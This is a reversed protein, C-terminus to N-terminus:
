PAVIIKYSEPVLEAVRKQGPRLKEHGKKKFEIFFLKGNKIGIRDCVVTPSFIEWDDARMGKALSEEWALQAHRNKRCREPDILGRKGDGGKFYAGCSPM